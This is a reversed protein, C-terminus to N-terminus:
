VEALEMFVLTVTSSSHLPIGQQFTPSSIPHWNHLHAQSFSPLAPQPHPQWAMHAPCPVPLSTTSSPTFLTPVRLPFPSIWLM